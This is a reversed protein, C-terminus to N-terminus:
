MDYRTAITLQKWPPGAAAEKCPSPLMACSFVVLRVASAKYVEAVDEKPSVNM